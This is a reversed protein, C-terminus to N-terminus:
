KAEAIDRIADAIASAMSELGARLQQALISSGLDMAATQM